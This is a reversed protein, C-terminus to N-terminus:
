ACTSAPDKGLGRHCLRGSVFVHCNTHKRDGRGESHSRKVLWVTGGPSLALKMPQWLLLYVVLYVLWDQPNAHLVRCLGQSVRSCSLCQTWGRGRCKLAM